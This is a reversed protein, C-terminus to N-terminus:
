IPTKSKKHPIEQVFRPVGYGPLHARLHEIIEKGQNSDVEFHSAGQVRDLQHLYYPLIGHDILKQHLKLQTEFDDNVGKLLVAQNLTMIGLRQLKSIAQTVDEDLEKPHNNHLVFIVKYRRNDLLELFHTDLREPIGIPFRTHFRVKTIHSYSELTDLLSNIKHDSLSLPDGGSLIVENLSKDEEILKLEETLAYAEQYDFNQRFCYRCHMACASTTLLLARGNYKRLLRTHSRFEQDQVPDLSFQPHPILEDKLPLFQKLLPDNLTGKEIKLALRKPVNLVFNEPIIVQKRHELNLELFDLLPKLHVFNEKQITRWLPISQTISM